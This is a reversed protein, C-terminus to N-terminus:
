RSSRSCRNSSRRMVIDREVLELLGDGESARIADVSEWNLNPDYVSSFRDLGMVDKDRALLAQTVHSDMFGAAGAILNPSRRDSLAPSDGPLLQHFRLSM